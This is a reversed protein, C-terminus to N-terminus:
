RYDFTEVVSEEGVRLVGRVGELGEKDVRVSGGVVLDGLVVPQAFM